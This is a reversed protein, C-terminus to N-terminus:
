EVGSLFPEVDNVFRKMAQLQAKGQMSTVRGERCQRYFHGTRGCLWCEKSNRDAQPFRGRTNYRERSQSRGRSTSRNRRSDYSDRGYRAPSRDGRYRFPSRDRDLRGASPSRSLGRRSRDFRSRDRFPSRSRDRFPRGSRSTDSYEVKENIRFLKNGKKGPYPSDSRNRGSNGQLVLMSLQEVLDNQNQIALQVAASDANGKAVREYERAFKVANSLDAPNNSKVFLRMQTPLGGIFWDKTFDNGFQLRAAAQTLRDTFANVTEDPRLKVDALCEIDQERTNDSSFRALFATRLANVTAFELPEIWRRAAGRLTLKFIGIQAPANRIADGAAAVRVQEAIYDQFNYFHATADEKEKGYFLGPGLRPLPLREEGM